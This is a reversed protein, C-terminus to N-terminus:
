RESKELGKDKVGTCMNMFRDCDMVKERVREIVTELACNMTGM